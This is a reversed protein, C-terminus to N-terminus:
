MGAGGGYGRHPRTPGSRRTHTRRGNTGHWTFALIMRDVHRRSGAFTCLLSSRAPTGLAPESGVVCREGSRCVVLAITRDGCICPPGAKSHASARRWARASDYSIYLRYSTHSTLSVFVKSAGQWSSGFNLPSFDTSVPVPQGRHGARHMPMHGSPASREFFRKTSPSEHQERGRRSGSEDVRIAVSKIEYELQSGGRRLHADLPHSM